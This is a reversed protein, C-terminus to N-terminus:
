DYAGSQLQQDLLRRALTQDEEFAATPWGQIPRGYRDFDVSTVTSEGTAEQDIWYCRVREPPIRGEAIALQVGLMLIRSHTEALIMPPEASAAIACFHAALAQQANGHLHSEPEEIALLGNRGKAQALSGAVLVPLVQIMGEGTDLLDIRLAESMPNLLIRHQRPLQEPLEIRRGIEPRQYWGAVERQVRKDTLLVEAANSGDPELARHHSGSKTVLRDWRARVSKLWQIGRRLGILRERLADLVENDTDSAPVLGVFGPRIIPCDDGECTQRYDEQDPYPEAVIQLELRDDPGFISLQSVVVQDLEDIWKLQFRDRRTKGTKEDETWRLTLEIRKHDSRQCIADLFSAGSGAVAAIDFPSSAEEAISAKIIPLLRLIASKGANNRGYLLTLPRLEIDLPQSFSRYGVASIGTLVM